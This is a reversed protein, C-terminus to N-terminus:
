EHKMHEKLCESCQCYDCAVHTRRNWACAAEKETNKYAGCAMCYVCFVYFCEDENCEVLPSDDASAGCDFPCPKLEETM